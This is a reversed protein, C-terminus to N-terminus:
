SGNLASRLQILDDYVWNPQLASVALDSRSSVGTLVLITHLGANHGGAIDTDLRDGVAASTAPVAGLMGLALAFGFPSPKGIVHPSVGTAATLAAIIAGAGPVLGETTPFTTDPNTAVFQAGSRILLTARKLKEYNLARDMGVVVYDANGTDALMLGQESLPERLGDEGIVFVRTGNPNSQRLYRATAMSSTLIHRADVPMEMHQLREAIRAPTRTANNTLLLFPVEKQRLFSLFEVAGPLPQSGTYLVGDMDLIFARIARLNMGGNM